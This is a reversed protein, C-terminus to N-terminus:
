RRTLTFTCCDENLPRADIRDLTADFTGAYDDQYSWWHVARRFFTLSRPDTLTGREVVSVRGLPGFWIEGTFTNGVQTFTLTWRTDIDNWTGAISKVTVNQSTSTAAGRADRITLTVNLTGAVSFVHQAVVGSATQGDGFNWSYTLVDGDPDSGSATFTVVTAALLVINGPSLTFSGTPSQNASPGTASDGDGNGGCAPLLAVM